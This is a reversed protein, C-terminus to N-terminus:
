HALRFYAAPATLPVDATSAGLTGAVDVWSAPALSGTRQLRTTPSAAWTFHVLGASVTFNLRILGPQPSEIRGAFRRLFGPDRSTTVTLDYWNNNTGVLVTALVTNGAGVSYNWPGGSLYANATVGFTAASATSNRLAVTVAGATPDLSCSAELQDCLNTIDGAFRRVFRNPGYTTLDYNGGGFLAVSFYDSVAGGAPVDYQWPGDARFANAYIAVHATATGANTMTIYFRSALWDAHSSTTLQYPLPRQGLTGTEQVPITQPSPVGPATGYDCSVASVSPLSPFSTEPHAFDFAATLDGCV